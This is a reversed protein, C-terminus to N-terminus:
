KKLLNIWVLTSASDATSQAAKATTQAAATQRSLEYMTYEDKFRPHTQLRRLLPRITDMGIRSNHLIETWADRTETSASQDRLLAFSDTSAREYVAYDTSYDAFTAALPAVQTPPYLETCLTVLNTNADDVLLLDKCEAPLVGRLKTLRAESAKNYADVLLMTQFDETNVVVFLLALAIAAVAILIAPPDHWWFWYTVGAICGVAIISVAVAESRKFLM